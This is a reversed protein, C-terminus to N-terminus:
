TAVEMGLEARVEAKCGEVYANYEAFEEPKTDRKRMAALEDSLSYKKRVKKNVLDAYGASKTGNAEALNRINM